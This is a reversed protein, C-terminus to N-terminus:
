TPCFNIRWSEMKDNKNFVKIHPMLLVDEKDDDAFKMWDFNQAYKEFSGCCIPATTPTSNEM